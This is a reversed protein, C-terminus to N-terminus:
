LQTLKTARLQWIERVHSSSTHKDLVNPFNHKKKEREGLKKQDRAYANELVDELRL